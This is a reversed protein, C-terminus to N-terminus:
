RTFSVLDAVPLGAAAGSANRQRVVAPTAPVGSGQPGTQRGSVSPGANPTVVVAAVSVVAVSLGGAVVRAARLSPRGSEAATRRHGIARLNAVLEAPPHVPPLTEMQAKALRQAYVGARCQQCDELHALAVELQDPPLQEDVLAAIQAGLHAM